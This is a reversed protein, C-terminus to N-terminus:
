LSISTSFHGKNFNCTQQFFNKVSCQRVVSEAEIKLLSYNLHFSEHQFYCPLSLHLEHFNSTKSKYCALHLPTRTQNLSTSVTEELHEVSFSNRFIEMFNGGILDKKLLFKYTQRTFKAFFKLGIVRYPLQKQAETSRYILYM